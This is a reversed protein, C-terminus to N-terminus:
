PSFSFVLFFILTGAIFLVGFSLFLIRDIVAAALMWDRKMDEDEETKECEEAARRHQMELLTCIRMLLRETNSFNAANVPLKEYQGQNENERNTHDTANLNEAHDMGPPPTLKM